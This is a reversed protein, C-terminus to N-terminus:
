CAGKFVHELSTGRFDSTVCSKKDRQGSLNTKLSNAVSNTLRSHVKDRTQIGRARKRKRVRKGNREKRQKQDRHRERKKNQRLVGRQRFSQLSFPKKKDPLYKM